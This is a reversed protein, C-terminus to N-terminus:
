SFDCGCPLSTYMSHKVIMSTLEELEWGSCYRPWEFSSSGGSEVALDTLSSFNKVMEKSELRRAELKQKFELSLMALNLNQWSTWATCPLSGWLHFSEGVQIRERAWLEIQKIQDPDSLDCVDRSFGIYPIGKEKALKSCESNKSCAFEVFWVVKQKLRKVKPKPLASMANALRESLPMEERGGVEIADFFISAVAVPGRDIMDALESSKRGTAIMAGTLGPVVGVDNEEFQTTAM